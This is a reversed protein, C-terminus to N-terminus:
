LFRLTEWNSHSRVPETPGRDLVSVCQGSATMPIELIAKEPNFDFANNVNCSKVIEYLAIANHRSPDNRVQILNGISTKALALRDRPDM